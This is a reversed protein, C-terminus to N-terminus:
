TGTPILWFRNTTSRTLSSCRFRELHSFGAIRMEGNVISPRMVVGHKGSEASSMLPSDAALRTHGRDLEPYSVLVTGDNRRVLNAAARAPNQVVARYFGEFYAPYVTVAAVGNFKGDKLLPRSLTFAMTGAAQGRFPASIVLGGRDRAQTYYERESGDFPPVPFARSTAALRGNPDVLFVSEVQPLNQKLRVLYQHVTPNSSIDQWDRHDIGDEVRALVLEITEMVAEAHEALANTTDSIREKARAVENTRDYWAAGVFLLLPLIISVTFLLHGSTVWRSLLARAIILSFRDRM